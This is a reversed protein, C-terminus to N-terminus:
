PAVGFRASVKGPASGYERLGVGFGDSFLLKRASRPPGYVARFLHVALAIKGFAILTTNGMPVGRYYVGVTKQRAFCALGGGGKFDGGKQRAPEGGPSPPPPRVVPSQGPGRLSVVVLRFTVCPRLRVVFRYWLIVNYILKPM